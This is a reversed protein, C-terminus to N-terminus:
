SLGADRLFRGRAEQREMQKEWTMCPRGACELCILKMCGRCVDVHNQMERMSPFETMRQCHACTSSHVTTVTGDPGFYEGMGGPRLARGRPM